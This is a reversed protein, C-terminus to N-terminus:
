PHLTRTLNDIRSALDDATYLLAFADAVLEQGHQDVAAAAVDRLENRLKDALTYADDLTGKLGTSIM